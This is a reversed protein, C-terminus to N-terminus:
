LAFESLLMYWHLVSAPKGHPKTAADLIMQEVTNSDTFSKM